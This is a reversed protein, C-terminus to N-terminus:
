DALRVKIAVYGAPGAKETHKAVGDFLVFTGLGLKRSGADTKLTTAGDVIFLLDKAPQSEAIAHHPPAQYIATASARHTLFQQFLKPAVSPDAPLDVEEIKSKGDAGASVRVAKIGDGDGAIASAWPNGNDKADAMAPARSAALAVAAGGGAAIVTRRKISM